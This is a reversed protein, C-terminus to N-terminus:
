KRRRRSLVGGGLLSAAGLLALAPGTVPLAATAVAGESMNGAEDVTVVKFMYTEGEVGGEYSYETADSLSGVEEYTEGDDTSVYLVQDVMDGATNLSGEWSLDVIMDMVSAVLDTVDEPAVVDELTDSVEFEDPTTYSKASSFGGDTANEAADMVGTATVFYETAATHEGTTLVLTTRDEVMDGNEEDTTILYEVALVEVVNDAGDFIEFADLAPEFDDELNEDEPLYVEEDFMLELETASAVTVSELSPADTDPESDVVDLDIDVDVMVDSDGEAMWAILEDAYSGSCEETPNNFAENYLDTNSALADKDFSCELSLDKFRDLSESPTATCVHNVVCNDGDEGITVDYTYGLMSFEFSTASCSALNEEFCPIDTGCEVVEEEVACETGTFLATDSTGSIVAHDFRDEIEVGVTMLYQAGAEMEETTLVLKEDGSDAHSVSAIELLLLNDLSEITFAEGPNEEPFTVAESFTVEIVTCSTAEADLVTPHEGDDGAGEPTASEEFSYELSENEADDVATVAFYYMTANELGPVTYELVDGVELFGLNYEEGAETVSETGFYVKYGTVAVNDTAADWTLTAEGDGPTVALGDVYSPAETDPETDEAFAAGFHGMGIVMMTAVAYPLSRKLLKLTRYM